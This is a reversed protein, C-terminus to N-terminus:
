RRRRGLLVGAVAGALGAAAAVAATLARDRAGGGISVYRTGNADVEIYGLPRAAVADSSGGVRAVPVVTRGGWRVPEGYCLGAGQGRAAPDDAVVPEAVVVEDVRPATRQKKKDKKSM